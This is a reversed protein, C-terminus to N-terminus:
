NEVNPWVVQFFFTPFSDKRCYVEYQYISIRHVSCMSHKKLFESSLKPRSFSAARLSDSIDLWSVHIDSLTDLDLIWVIKLHTSIIKFKKLAWSKTFVRQKTWIVWAKHSSLKSFELITLQNNLPNQWMRRQEVSGSFIAFCWIVWLVFSIFLSVSIVSVLGFLFEFSDRTL